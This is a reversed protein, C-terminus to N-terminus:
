ERRPPPRLTPSAAAAHDLANRFSWHRPYRTRIGQIFVTANGTGEAVAVAEACAAALAAVREYAGRHQGRVVADVRQEVAKRAADLWRARAAPSTLRAAVCEALLAALGPRAREGHVEGESEDLDEDGADSIEDDLAGLEDDDSSALDGPSPSPAPWFAHGDMQQFLNALLSGGSSPPVPRGTSAVLLYPVVVPGPNDSYSWGLPEARGLREAAADVRGALLLLACALREDAPTTGGPTANGAGTGARRWGAPALLDAEAALVEEATGAPTGAMAGAATAAATLALLRVMSPAARWAARRAELVAAARADSGDRAAALAALCEAIKARVEGHEGLAALAEHCAATADAVRDERTLAGIWDLFLEPHAPGRERALDGLGDVGRGLLTAEALLARAEADDPHEAAFGLQETWRPLFADLDPLGERRADALQRLGVRGGVWALEEMEEALAEAREEAPTTEYLARLYRAKAEDVDAAVMDQPPQPGCFTGVGGGDLLFARLLRGYAERALELDGAVFADAAADFLDDMEDAWSEDGWAREEHLEDDWGWDQYYKGAELGAVFADIEGLLARGADQRAAASPERGRPAQSPGAPFVALFQERDRAPLREAHELLATRLAEASLARLRRELEELFPGLERRTGAVAM